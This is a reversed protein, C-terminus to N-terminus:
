GREVLERSSHEIETEDPFWVKLITQKWRGGVAEDSTSERM